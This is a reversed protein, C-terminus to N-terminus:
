KCDFRWTTLQNTLCLYGVFECRGAGVRVVLGNRVMRCCEAGYRMVWCEMADGWVMGSLKACLEEISFWWMGGADNKLM